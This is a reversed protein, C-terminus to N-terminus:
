HRRRHGAASRVSTRQRIAVGYELCFARAQNIPRTRSSDRLRHPAQLDIQETTRVQTFRMTPRTVAEADITGNKQSKV